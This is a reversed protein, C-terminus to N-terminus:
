ARWNVVDPWVKVLLAALSLKQKEESHSVLAYSRAANQKALDIEGQHFMARALNYLAMATTLAHHGDNHSLFQECYRRKLQFNQMSEAISSALLCLLGLWQIEKEQDAKAIWEDAHVLAELNQNKVWLGAIQRMAGSYGTYEDAM